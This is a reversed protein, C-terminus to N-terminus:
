STAREMGAIPTTRSYRAKPAPKYPSTRREAGAPSAFDQGAAAAGCPIMYVRHPAAGWPPRPAGSASTTVM